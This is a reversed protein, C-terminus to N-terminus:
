SIFISGPFIIILNCSMMLARCLLVHSMASWWIMSLLARDAGTVEPRLGSSKETVIPCSTFMEVM